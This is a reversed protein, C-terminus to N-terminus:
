RCVEEVRVHEVWVHLPSDGTGIHQRVDVRHADVSHVVDQHDQAHRALHRLDGLLYDGLLHDAAEVVASRFGARADSSALTHLVWPGDDSPDGIDHAMLFLVDVDVLRSLSVDEHQSLWKPCLDNPVQVLPHHLLIVPPSVLSAFHEAFILDCIRIMDRHLGHRLKVHVCCRQSLLIFTMARGIHRTESNESM